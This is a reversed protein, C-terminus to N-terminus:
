NGFLILICSGGEDVVEEVLNHKSAYELVADKLRGTGGGYVVRLELEGVSRSHFIFLELKDLAESPYHGHLDLIKLNPTISAAFKRAELNNM